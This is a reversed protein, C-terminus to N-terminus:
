VNSVPPLPVPGHRADVETGQLCSMQWRLTYLEVIMRTALKLNNTMLIKEVEVKGTEKPSKRTSFVLQVKGVSHVDRREQHVYYTRPKV